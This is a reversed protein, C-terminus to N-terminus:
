LSRDLAIFDNTVLNEMPVPEIGLAADAADLFTDLRDLDFSGVTADSGVSVVGLEISAAAGADLRDLTARTLPNFAVRWTALLENTPTPNEAYAVLADQVIPVLRGLCPTLDELESSRVALVDDYSDWGVVSALESAIPRGWQTLTPYLFPDVLADGQQASVGGDAVFAAPEGFFGDILQTSDLVGRAVLFEIFREGTVHRISVDAGRLGEFGDVDPYTQPDWMIMHHSTDTLSLVATVATDSLAAAAVDVIGTEVMTIADDAGLLEVPARFGVAPGGFRVELTVSEPTGDARVLPAALSQQDLDVTVEDGLLHLLPGHVVSAQGDIQVVIRSPCEEGLPGDEFIPRSEITTTTAGAEELPVTTSPVTTTQAATVAVPEPATSSCAAAIAAIAVLPGAVRRM